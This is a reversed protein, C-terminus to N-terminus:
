SGVTGILFPCARARSRAALVFRPALRSPAGPPELRALM